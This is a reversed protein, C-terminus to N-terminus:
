NFWKDLTQLGKRRNEVIRLTDEFLEETTQGGKADDSVLDFIQSVPKMIQNTIYFGYDIKLKNDIVYRPHEISDGQLTSKTEKIEIYVYPIRDNSKPKNGPDREGMRNALVWHAIGM